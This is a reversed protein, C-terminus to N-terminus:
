LRESYTGSVTLNTPATAAFHLNIDADPTQSAGDIDVTGAVGAPSIEVSGSGSPENLTVINSASLADVNVQSSPGDNVDFDLTDPLTAGLSLDVISNTPANLTFNTVPDYQFGLLLQNGVTLQTEDEVQTFSFGDGGAGASDNVTIQASGAEGTVSVFGQVAQIQNSDGIIVDDSAGTETTIGTFTGPNTDAVGVIDHGISNVFYNIVTSSAPLEQIAYGDGGSGSDLTIDTEPSAGAGAPTFNITAGAFNVVQTSTLTPDQHIPDQTDQIEIDALTANSAVVNIPATIAQAGINNDVNGIFLELRSAGSPEVVVPLDTNFIKVIDTADKTDISVVTFPSEPGTADHGGGSLTWGDNILEQNLTITDDDENFIIQGSQISYAMDNEIGSTQEIYSRWAM